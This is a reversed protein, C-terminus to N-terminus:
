KKLLKLREYQNARNNLVESQLARGRVVAELIDEQSSRIGNFNFVLDKIKSDEASSRMLSAPGGMVHIKQSNLATIIGELENELLALRSPDTTENILKELTRKEVLHIEKSILILSDEGKRLGNGFAVVFTRKDGVESISVLIKKKEDLISHPAHFVEFAGLVQGNNQSEFKSRLQSSNFAFIEEKANLIAPTSVGAYSNKAVIEAQRILGPNMETGSINQLKRVYELALDERTKKNELIIKTLTDVELIMKKQIDTPLSSFRDSFLLPKAADGLTSDTGYKLLTDNIVKQRSLAVNMADLELYEDSSLKLGQSLKKQFENFKKYLGPGFAEFDEINAVRNMFRVFRTDTLMEKSNNKILYTALQGDGLNDTSVKFFAKQLDREVVKLAFSKCAQTQCNQIALTAKNSYESLVQQTANQVNGLSGHHDFVHRHYTDKVFKMATQEDDFSKLLASKLHGSVNDFDYNTDILKYGGKKNELFSLLHKPLVQDALIKDFETLRQVTTMKKFNKSNVLKLMAQNAFDLGEGKSIFVGANGYANLSKSVSKASISSGGFIATPLLIAQLKLERNKQDLQQFDAFGDLGLFDSLNRSKANGVEKYVKYLGKVEVGLGAGLCVSSSIPGAFFCPVAAVASIALDEYLDANEEKLKEKLLTEALGCYQPKKALLDEIDPIFQAYEAWKIDKAKESKKKLQSLYKQLKNKVKNLAFTIQDNSPSNSDKLDVNEIYGIMPMQNMLQFYQNKNESQIEDMLSRTQSIAYNNNKDNLFNALIKQDSLNNNSKKNRSIVEALSSSQNGLSNVRITAKKLREKALLKESMMSSFDYRLAIEESATLKELSSFDSFMGHTMKKSFWTDQDNILHSERIPSKSLALHHRVKPFRERISNRIDTLQKECLTKQTNKDIKKVLFWNLDNKACAELLELEFLKLEIKTHVTDMVENQFSLVFGVNLIKKLSDFSNASAQQCEVLHQANSNLTINREICSNFSSKLNISPPIAHNGGGGMSYVPNFDIM